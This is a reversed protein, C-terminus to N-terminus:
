NLPTSEMLPPAFFLLEDVQAFFFDDLTCKTIGFRKEIPVNPNEFTSICEDSNLVLSRIQVAPTTTPMISFVTEVDNKDLDEKCSKLGFFGSPLIALCQGDKSPSHFQVYGFFPIKKFMKDRNTLASIPELEVVVWNQDILKKRDRSVALNIGTDLSRISLMPTFDPLEGPDDKAYVCVSLFFMLLIKKM